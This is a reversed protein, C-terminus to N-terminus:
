TARLEEISSPIEDLRGTAELEAIARLADYLDYCEPCRDLHQRVLPLIRAADEGSVQRDVFQAIGEYLAQCDIEEDQTKYVRQLWQKFQDLNM